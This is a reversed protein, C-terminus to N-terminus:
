SAWPGLFCGQPFSLCPGERAQSDSSQSLKSLTGAGLCVNSNSLSINWLLKRRGGGRSGANMGTQGEVREEDLDRSRFPQVLGPMGRPSAGTLTARTDTPCTLEFVSLSTLFALDPDCLLSSSLESTEVQQLHQCVNGWGLMLWVRGPLCERFLPSLGVRRQKRKHSEGGSERSCSNSSVLSFCTHMCASCVQGVLPLSPSRTAM